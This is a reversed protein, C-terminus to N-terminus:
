EHLCSISSYVRSVQTFVLHELLCSISSFVRNRLTDFFFISYIHGQGERFLCSCTSPFTKIFITIFLTLMNILIKIFMYGTTVEPIWLHSWTGRIRLVVVPPPPPLSTVATQPPHMIICCAKLVPHLHTGRTHLIVSEQNTVASLFSFKSLTAM